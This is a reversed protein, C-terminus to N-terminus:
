EDDFVPRSVVHADWDGELVVLHRYLAGMVASFVGSARGALIFTRAKDGSEQRILFASFGGGRADPKISLNIGSDVVRQMLDFVEPGNVNAWEKFKKRESESLDINVFVPESKGTLEKYREPPAVKRSAM